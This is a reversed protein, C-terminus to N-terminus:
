LGYEKWRKTVLNYTNKDSQIMNPWNRKYGEEKTKTTADIGLKGGYFQNYSSHDLHDVPGTNIIIDQSYDVNGLVYWSLQYYDHINCQTDVVIILKTLSLMNIGWIANIVKFAHKPYQKKISVIIANHFVGTEPLSYDIVEPLISQLLPLFFRETAKGFSIDESPPKGVVISQFIPDSRTTICNIHVVPFLEQPTYFGTHDGFPGEQKLEDLKIYGEFVVECEAPVQLPVTICNVMKIRENAIFSAFLYENINAPLPATAAYTVVPSCGFAIAIPMTKKDKIYQDYHYKGHKHIQWHMGLTNHSHKQLRYLGINKTNNYIDVTHTLGLNFYYGGDEPWTFLSPFNNINVQDDKYIIEQCPAKNIIKPSLSTFLKTAQIINSVSINPKTTLIQRIKNGIDDYSNIKLGKCLRNHTGYLNMILPMKYGKVKNFLLAAGNQKRVRDSIEAIELYPDVEINISKLENTNKLEKIFSRLTHM